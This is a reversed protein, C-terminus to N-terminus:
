SQTDRAQQLEQLRDQEWEALNLEIAWFGFIWLFADWAYLAYGTVAWTVGNFILVLYFLTKSVRVVPLLRSGFRDAGQLWVEVEILLVVIIWIFANSIDLWGQSQVHELLSAGLVSTEGEFRYFVSDDSLEECSEGTIQEYDVSNVQLWVDDDALQCVDSVGAVESYDYTDLAEVTYGYAAFAILIYCVARGVLLTRTIKKTFAEDPLAYTELEFLAILAVWAIMDVSTSFRTLINILPADDPIAAFLAQYDDLIYFGTNILLSVYVVWKILQAVKPRTLLPVLLSKVTLLHATPSLIKNNNM